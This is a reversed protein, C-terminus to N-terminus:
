HLVRTKSLAQETRAHAEIIQELAIDRVHSPPLQQILTGM